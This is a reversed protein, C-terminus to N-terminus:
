PIIRADKKVQNLSSHESFVLKKGCYRVNKVHVGMMTRRQEMEASMMSTRCARYRRADRDM